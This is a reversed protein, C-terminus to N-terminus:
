TVDATSKGAIDVEMTGFGVYSVILTNVDNGVSIRYSGDAGTSTGGTGGKPQVTAGVIPSGDRVDTVRGTIVKQAFVSQTLLLLLLPFSLRALLRKTIM